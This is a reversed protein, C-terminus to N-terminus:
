LHVKNRERGAATDARFAVGVYVDVVGLRHLGDAIFCRWECQWQQGAARPAPGSIASTIIDNVGGGVGGGVKSGARRADPAAGAGCVFVDIQQSLTCASYLFTLNTYAHAHLTANSVTRRTNGVFFSFCFLVFL